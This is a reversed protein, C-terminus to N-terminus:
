YTFWGHDDLKLQNEPQGHYGSFRWSSRTCIQGSVGRPVTDGKEDVIKMEGGPIPIGIIGEVYESKDSQFTAFGGCETTGYWVALKKCFTDKLPLVNVSFREGGFFMLRVNRFKHAYEPHKVVDVALYGPMYAVDVNEKEIIDCLQYINKGLLSMRTDLFVRTCGTSVFASQFGAAWNFPRDCFYITDNSIELRLASQKMWNIIERDARIHVFM